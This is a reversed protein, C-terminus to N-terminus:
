QGDTRVHCYASAREDVCGCGCGGRAWVQVGVCCMWVWLWGEGVGACGCLVDVGVGARGCLVDVGVAVGGVCRCAWVVCGPYLPDYCCVTSSDLAFLNPSYDCCLVRKPTLEFLLNVGWLVIYDADVYM